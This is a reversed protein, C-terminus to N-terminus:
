VHQSEKAIPYHAQHLSVGAENLLKFISKRYIAINQVKEKLHHSAKTKGLGTQTGLSGCLLRPIGPDFQILHFQCALDSTYYFLTSYLFILLNYNLCFVDLLM